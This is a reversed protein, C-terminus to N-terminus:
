TMEPTYLVLPVWPEQHHGRDCAQRLARRSAPQLPREGTGDQLATPLGRVNKQAPSSDTDRCCQNADVHTVSIQKTNQAVMECYCAVENIKNNM